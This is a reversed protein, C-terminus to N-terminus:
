APLPPGPTIITNPSSCPSPSPTSPRHSSRFLSTETAAVLDSSASAALAAANRSAAAVANTAGAPKSADPPAWPKCSVTAIPTATTSRPTSHIILTFGTPGLEELLQRPPSVSNPPPILESHKAHSLAFSANILTHLISLQPHSALTTSSLIATTTTTATPSSSSPLPNTAPTEPSTKLSSSPSALSVM